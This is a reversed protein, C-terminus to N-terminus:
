TARTVTITCPTFAGSGGAGGAVSGNSAVRFAKIKYTRTGAAPTVLLKCFIPEGIVAPPQLQALQDLQTANDWLVVALIDAAASVGEPTYFEIWYSSIGDAVFGAGSVIDTQSASTGSVTVTSALTGRDVIQGIPRPPLTQLTM